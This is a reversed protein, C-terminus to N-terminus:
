KASYRQTIKAVVKEFSKYERNVAVERVVKFLAVISNQDEDGFIIYKAHLKSVMELVGEDNEIEDIALNDVNGDDSNSDENRIEDLIKMKMKM